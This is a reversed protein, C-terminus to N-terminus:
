ERCIEEQMRAICGRVPALADGEGEDSIYLLVGHGAKAISASYVGDAIEYVRLIYARGASPADASVPLGEETFLVSFLGVLDRVNAGFMSQLVTILEQRQM